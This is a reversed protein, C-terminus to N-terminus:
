PLYGHLRQGPHLPKGTDGCWAGRANRPFDYRIEVAKSYGSLANGLFSAGAVPAFGFAATYTAAEADETSVSKFVAVALRKGDCGFTPRTSRIDDGGGTLGRPSTMYRLYYRNWNANAVCVQRFVDHEFEVRFDRAM